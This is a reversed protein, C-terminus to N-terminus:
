KEYYKKLPIIEMGKIVSGGESADYVTMNVDPEKLRMEIWHRYMDFLNSATLQAKKINYKDDDLWEIEYGEVKQMDAIDNAVRRSTGEAHAFNGTYALDLGLFAISRCGLSICVDLATTAVSGGTKYKKANLKLAEEEARDYDEQLIIYKEGAYSNAFGRYATSLYLMPVKCDLYGSIQAFVRRNADSVIVYDVDVGMAMLKRFVTGTAIILTNEPKELLLRVNNDLSPGAAVIIANKGAFDDELADIVDTMNKINDRFNSEMLAKTNRIGSDRIFIKQLKAKVDENGIHRMSPSHIIFSMDKGGGIHHSIERTMEKLDPDYVLTINENDLLWDLNNAMMAQLIVELSNEYINITIGEDMLSMAECHYGLALGLIIYKDCTMDYYYQAFEKAEVQPNTNSHFYYQGMDDFGAMTFLGSNTPELWYAPQESVLWRAQEKELIEALKADKQKLKKINEDWIDQCFMVDCSNRASEQVSLLFPLLQMEILDAILIYDNSKQAEIITMLFDSIGSETVDMGITSKLEACGAVFGSLETTLQMLNRLAKDYNQIHVAKVITDSRYQLKINLNHVERLTM